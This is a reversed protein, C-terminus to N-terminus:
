QFAIAYVYHEDDGTKATTNGCVTLFSITRSTAAKQFSFIGFLNRLIAAIFSFM